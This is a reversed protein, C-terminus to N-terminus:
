FGRGYIGNSQFLLQVVGALVGCLSLFDFITQDRLFKRLHNWFDVYGFQQLMHHWHLIAVQSLGAQHM